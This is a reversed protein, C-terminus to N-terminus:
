ALRGPGIYVHRIDHAELHWHFRSQFEAGNDDPHGASSLSVGSSRTWSSSPQPKPAPMTSKSCGSERATMSPRSNISAGKLARLGSWSSVDLQLRHGPEPKEYRKWPRGTPRLKQHAPLRNVGYRILIRHVTSRAVEMHLFRHVYSAIRGPGFHYRKRLYLIKSVVARPTTKPFHYPVRPRDCL